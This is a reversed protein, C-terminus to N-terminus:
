NDPLNVFVLFLAITLALHVLSVWAIVGLSSQYRRRLVLADIGVFLLVFTVISIPISFYRWFGNVTALMTGLILWGATCISMAISFEFSTKLNEDGDTPLKPQTAGENEFREAGEVFPPHEVHQKRRREFFSVVGFSLKYAFIAGFFYLVAGAVTM